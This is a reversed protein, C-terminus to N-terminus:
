DLGLRYTGTVPAGADVNLEMGRRFFHDETTSFECEEQPKVTVGIREHPCSRCRWASCGVSAGSSSDVM